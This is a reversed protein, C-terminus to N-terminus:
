VVSKRDKIATHLRSKRSGSAAGVSSGATSGSTSATTTRRKISANGTSSSDGRSCSNSTTSSAVLMLTANHRIGCDEVTASESLARGEYVVACADVHQQQQFKGQLCERVHGITHAPALRLTRVQGSSSVKCMVTLVRNHRTVRYAARAEEFSM